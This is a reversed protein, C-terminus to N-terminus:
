RDAALFGDLPFVTILVWQYLNLNGTSRVRKVGALVLHQIGTTANISEFLTVSFLSCVIQLFGTSVRDARAKKQERCQTKQEGVM